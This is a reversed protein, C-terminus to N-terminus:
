SELKYQQIYTMHIIIVITKDFSILQFSFCIECYKFFNYQSYVCIGNKNINFWFPEFSM